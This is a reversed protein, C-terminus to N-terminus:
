RSVWAAPSDNAGDDVVFPNLRELVRM